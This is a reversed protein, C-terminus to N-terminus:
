VFSLVSSRPLSSSPYPSIRCQSQASNIIPFVLDFKRFKDHTQIVLESLNSGVDEWMICKGRQVFNILYYRMFFSLRLSWGNMIMMLDHEKHMLLTWNLPVFLEGINVCVEEWTPFATTFVEFLGPGDLGLFFGEEM